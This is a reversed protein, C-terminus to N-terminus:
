LGFHTRVLRRVTEDTGSTSVDVWRADPESRFFTEQRKAYQQTLTIVAEVTADADKDEVIARAIVDYGLSRMAPADLGAGCALLSRVEDVWGKRYMEHTREAIRKRLEARPLTLVLKLGDWPVAHKQRAIHESHTKGTLLRIEIARLIRVRDRPSLAAARETDIERLNEYLEGTSQAALTHRLRKSEDGPISVDIIGHFLVRFYLGTGGVFFSAKGKTLIEGFAKEARAAHAGASNSEQPDLTDILHHPIRRRDGPTVKGTGIDFGRYVQRSDMSVIEGDFEEAMRIALDSKGTATAGMIAVARKRPNM